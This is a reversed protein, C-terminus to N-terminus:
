NHKSGVNLKTKLLWKKAHGIARALLIARGFFRAGLFFNTWGQIRVNM